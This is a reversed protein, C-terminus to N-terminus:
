PLLGRSLPSPVQLQLAASFEMLKFRDKALLVDPKLEHQSVNMAITFAVSNGRNEVIAGRYMIQREILGIGLEELV